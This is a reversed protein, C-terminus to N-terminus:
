LTAQIASMIACLEANINSGVSIPTGYTTVAGACDISPGVRGPNPIASGDTYIIVDNARNFKEVFKIHALRSISISIQKYTVKINAM